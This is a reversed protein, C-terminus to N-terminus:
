QHREKKRKRKIDKIIHQKIYTHREEHNIENANAKTKNKKQIHQSQNKAEKTKTQNRYKKM